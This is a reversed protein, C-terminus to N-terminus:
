ANAPVVVVARSWDMGHMPPELALSGSLVVGCVGECQRQGNRYPGWRHACSTVTAHRDPIASEPPLYYGGSETPRVTTAQTM